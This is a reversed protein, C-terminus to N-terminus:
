RTNGVKKSWASHALGLDEHNQYRDLFVLDLGSDGLDAIHPTMVYSSGTLSNEKAWEDLEGSLARLDDIHKGKCFSCAYIDLAAYQSAAHNDAFNLHALLITFVALVLENMYIELNMNLHLHSNSDYISHPNQLVLCLSRCGLIPNIWMRKLIVIKM